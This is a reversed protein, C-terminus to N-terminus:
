RKFISQYVTVSALREGKVTGNWLSRCPVVPVSSSTMEAQAGRYVGTDVYRVVITPREDTWDNGSATGRTGLRVIAEEQDKSMEEAVITQVMRVGSSGVITQYVSLNKKREGKLVVVDDQDGGAIGMHAHWEVGAGRPLKEVEAVFLPPVMARRKDKKSTIGNGNAGVKSGDEDLVTWDPLKQGKAKEGDGAAAFSMYRTNFRRDWLDPGAEDEEDEGDGDGEDDGRDRKKESWMHAAEWTRGALQAKERLVMSMAGSEVDDNDDESKAFEQQRPFYVVASSWWRVDVDVGIRWLHQLSLVLQCGLSDSSAPPLAMTAPVLPIQGAISVLRLGNGFDSSSSGLSVLPFSIAQSYPGINAPAWYSRSQVHLGQRQSPDQLDTHVALAISIKADRPLLSDGCSITVRSPPNPANFLSGYIANISPFDAMQRLVITSNIIATPTLKHQQLRQRIQSVISTTQEKISSSPSGSIFSWQQLKEDKPEQQNGLNPLDHEGFQQQDVQLDEAAPKDTDNFTSLSDLVNVFRDDLLDPIRVTRNTNKAADHGLSGEEKDQVRAGRLSLWATGGGENIVRRGKEDVVIHKKFLEPPGDLVLTEFEGGEGIVAGKEATGFRSMARAVKEKGDASAVNTWLFSEDLGGSAVKIIRAELGVATMDDLLQADSGAASGVLSGPQIPVPLAPFKWLYALPVLGLRTAVSEVRTRQYTSLIAGACIANVEPHAAKIVELLPIMSETEDESSSGPSYDKGHQGADGEITKRYLPIGTAEAYLPIVQHGVTQYMFSNLDEEEVEETETGATSDQVTGSGTGALSGGARGPGHRHGHGHGQAEGPLLVTVATGEDAPAAEEGAAARAGAVSTERHTARPSSCTGAPHLNALAVVRHGNALCHLISFFSDKGGSVLAIVSLGEESAAA